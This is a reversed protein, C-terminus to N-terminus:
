APRDKKHLALPALAGIRMQALTIPTAIANIAPGVNIEPGLDRHIAVADQSAVGQVTAKMRLRGGDGAIAGTESSGPRPSQGPQSSFPRIVHNM